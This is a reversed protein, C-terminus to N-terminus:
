DTLRGRRLCRSDLSLLFALTTLLAATPEPVAAISQALVTAVGSVTSNFALLDDDDVHGDGNADGSARTGTFLTGFGRQWIFFDAGNVSGDGNFDATPSDFSTETRWALGFQGPLDNSRVKLTYTGPGLGTLYLHEVNDVDSNSLGETYLGSQDTDVTVGSSDVLELELDAVIPNGSNFIPDGGTDTAIEANWTLVVSLEDATKGTPIDFRYELENFVGPLVTQFDWGHTAVPTPTTKSGAFRGAATALYSNYINLEGAGWQDDLPHWQGGADIQSWGAFEEKTAGAMLIAKMTQFRSADTGAVTSSSHLFTAASSTIATAGSTSPQPAVLDPKSRDPGYGDLLTLGSSHNGDSRGVALANYSTGLLNPVPNTSLNNLGVVATVNNTNIVYEFRRLAERDKNLEAVTPEPTSDDPTAFTGVWSFNQVRFNQLDPMQGNSDAGGQNDLDLVNSLYDDAEYLTVINAGPAASSSNGVMRRFQDFAHTSFGICSPSCASNSGDIITVDQGAPDTSAVFELSQLTPEYSNTTITNGSKRIQVAEVVSVPVGSGDPLSSALVNGLKEYDVLDLWAWAPFSWLSFTLAVAAIVSFRHAVAVVTRIVPMRDTTRSM